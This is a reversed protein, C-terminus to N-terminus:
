TKTRERELWRQQAAGEQELFGDLLSRAKWLELMRNLGHEKDQEAQRGQQGQEGKGKGKGKGFAGIDIQDDGGPHSTAKRRRADLRHM